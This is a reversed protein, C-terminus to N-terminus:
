KLKAIFDGRPGMILGENNVALVQKGYQDVMAGNQHVAYKLSGSSYPDKGSGYMVVPGKDPLAPNIYTYPPPRPTRDRRTSQLILDGAGCILGGLAAGRGPNNRDGIAGIGAGLLVSVALEPGNLRPGRAPPPVFPPTGPYGPRDWPYQVGPGPYPPVPPREVIVV